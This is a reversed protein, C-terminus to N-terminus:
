CNPTWIEGTTASRTSSGATVFLSECKGSGASINSEAELWERGRTYGHTTQLELVCFRLLAPLSDGTCVILDPRQSAPRKKRLYTKLDGLEMYPLVLLPASPRLKSTADKVWCIGLLQMVNPHDFSRM